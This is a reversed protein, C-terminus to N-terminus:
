QQRNTPSFARTVTHPLQTHSQPCRGQHPTDHPSGANPLMHTSPADARSSIVQLSARRTAPQIRPLQWLKLVIPGPGRGVKTHPPQPGAIVRSPPLLLLSVCYVVLVEHGVAQEAGEMDRARIVRVQGGRCVSGGVWM